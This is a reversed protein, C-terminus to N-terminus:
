ALIARKPGFYGMEYFQKQPMKSHINSQALSAWKKPWGEAAWKKEMPSAIKKVVTVAVLYATYPM